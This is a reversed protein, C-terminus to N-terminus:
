FAVEFVKEPDFSFDSYRIWKPTVKFFKQNEHFAYKKSAPNKALHINRCEEEGSGEVLRAVGEYQISIDEWGITFAINSNKLLNIFKRTNSFTGFIIELNKTESFAVVASEPRNNEADITAVVCITQSKLFELIKEQKEEM